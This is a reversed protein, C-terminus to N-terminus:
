QRPDFPQDDIIFKMEPVFFSYSDIGSGKEKAGGMRKPAEDEFLELLVNAKIQQLNPVCRFNHGPMSTRYGFVEMRKVGMEHICCFNTFEYINHVVQHVREGSDLYYFYSVDKDVVTTGDLRFVLSVNISKRAHKRMALLADKWAPLQPFLAQMSVVDFKQDARLADPFYGLVFECEPYREKGVRICREDPDVVTASINAVENRIAAVLDGGAGGVDCVSYGDKIYQPTFFHAMSRHFDKLTACKGSFIQSNLVGKTYPSLREQSM